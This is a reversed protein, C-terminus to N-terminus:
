QHCDICEFKQIIFNMKAQGDVLDEKHCAKCDIEAHRGELPFRTTNHDFNEPFWSETTHCRVCDTMGDISFQEGHVNEHCNVCNSSLGFFEQKLIKNENRTIHCSSCKTKQHLGTLEWNTQSHDFNAENWTTTTHCISCNQDPYYKESIFGEHIDSHCDKCDKGISRFEWKEDSKHCEFCPTALHSGTLPFSSKEHRKFDFSSPSFGNLDHCSSCDINSEKQTFEGNHYDSHCNKCYQFDIAERFSGKHCEKCDVALHKGKLPYDTLSHDFDSMNKIAIFGETSHCKACDLGFKGDHVDDHCKACNNQEVGLQDQFVTKPNKDAKHCQFCDVTKHKGTLEFKTKSHNFNKSGIFTTFSSETHCQTCANGINGLHPDQHCDKCQSFSSIAFTVKTNSPSTEDEKHCSKCDVQKHAGKLTFDTDDHNFYPAPQFTNTDHCKKCDSGLTPTHVDDHCTKCESHLGMFSNPRKKLEPNEIFDPKHCSNCDIIIHKGSLEFKTISHDFNEKDFRIMNFKRGHHESHCAFCDKSKTSPVAHFGRNKNISERVFKHCELCKDNSVKDGLTHCQTCNSMGELDSHAQTLDGPSIQSNVYTFQYIFFLLLLISKQGINKKSKINKLLSVL